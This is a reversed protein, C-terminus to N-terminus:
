GLQGSIRNFLKNAKWDAKKCFYMRRSIRVPLLGLSRYFEVAVKNEEPLAANKKRMMRWKMLVIGADHEDAVILGEGFSPLCFGAIRDGHRIVVADGLYASLLSERDEGSQLRDLELVSARDTAAIPFVSDDEPFSFANEEWQFHVYTGDEIFGLKRYLPFGADTAILQIAANPNNVAKDILFRTVREGRGQRKFDPHTIICALWFSDPFCIIAGLAAIEEGEMQKFAFCNNFSLFFQFRPILSGWGEPELADILSLDNQTFKEMSLFATFTCRFYLVSRYVCDSINKDFLTHSVCEM